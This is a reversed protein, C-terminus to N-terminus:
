TSTRANRDHVHFDGGPGRQVARDVGLLVAAREGPGAQAADGGEGARVAAPEGEEEQQAHHGRQQRHGGRHEGAPHDGGDDVAAVTSGDGPERQEDRQDRDRLGPQPQQGAPEGGGEALSQDQVQPGRDEVVHLPHRDGEEGAGPRPGQDVPQVVVHDAGLAGEAVGQRSHDGVGHGQQQGEGHHQADGPLDGQQREHQERHEHQRGAPHPRPHRRHLPLGGRQVGRHAGLHGLPEGSGARRQDFQEAPGGVLGRLERGPRRPHPVDPDTRRHGLRGEDGGEGEDRRQGKREDVPEAPEVGQATGQVGTGDHGEGQEQGPQVGRQGREGAGADLHHARHHAELPDELDEVQFGSM